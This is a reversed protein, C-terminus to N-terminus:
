APSNCVAPRSPEDRTPVAATIGFRLERKSYIKKIIIDIIIINAMIGIRDIFTIM